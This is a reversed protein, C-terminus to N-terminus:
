KRQIHVATKWMVWFLTTYCLSNVVFALPNAAFFDELSIRGWGSIPSSGPKDKVVALPFGGQQVGVQCEVGKVCEPPQVYLFISAFAVCTGPILSVIFQKM